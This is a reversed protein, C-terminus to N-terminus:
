AEDPNFASWPEATLLAAAVNRGEANLINFTSAANATSTAEIVIGRSRFYDYIEKPLPGPM